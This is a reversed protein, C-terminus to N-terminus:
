AATVEEAVTEKAAKVALAAEAPDSMTEIVIADAGAEAMARAQEAFAQSDQDTVALVASKEAESAAALSYRMREVVDIQRATLEIQRAPSRESQYRLVLLVLVLM